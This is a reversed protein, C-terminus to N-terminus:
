SYVEGRLRAGATKAWNGIHSLLLSLSLQRDKFCTQIAQTEDGLYYSSSAIALWCFRVSLSSLRLSPSLYLSIYCYDTTSKFSNVSIACHSVVCSRSVSGLRLGFTPFHSPKERGCSVVCRACRLDLMNIVEGRQPPIQKRLTDRHSGEETGRM